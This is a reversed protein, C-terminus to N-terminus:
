KLTNVTGIFIPNMTVTDVIAYCYPRDCIVEKYDQRPEALNEAKVTVATAAAAKTGKRDVEIHTKHIIKSIYFNGNSTDAIGSFDAKKKDFADTVGLKRVTENLLNGYDSKFEPMVTMVDAESRSSIFKRYDDYTFNKM